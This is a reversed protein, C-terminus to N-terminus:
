RKEQWDKEGLRSEREPLTPKRAVVCGHEDMCGECVVQDCIVCRTVNAPCGAPGHCEACPLSALM